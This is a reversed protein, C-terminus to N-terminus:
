IALQARAKLPAKHSQTYAQFIILKAPKQKFKTGIGYSAVEWLSRRFLTGNGSCGGNSWILIPLKLDAPPDVPAFITHGPLSSDEYYGSKYPGSALGGEVPKQALALAAAGVLLSAILRMSADSYGFSHLFNAELFSYKLLYRTCHCSHLSGHLGWRSNEMM